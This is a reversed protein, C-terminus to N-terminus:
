GKEQRGLLSASIVMAAGAGGVIAHSPGPTASFGIVLWFFFLLNAAAALRRSLGSADPPWLGMNLLAVFIACLGAGAFWIAAESLGSYFFFTGVTHIVGISLVVLTSIKHVARIV